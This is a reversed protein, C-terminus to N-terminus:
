WAVKVAHEDLLTSCTKWCFRMISPYGFVPDISQQLWTQTVPDLM